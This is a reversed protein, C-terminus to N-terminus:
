KHAEARPAFARPDDLHACPATLRDLLAMALKEDGFVQVWEGFAELSPFQWGSARM